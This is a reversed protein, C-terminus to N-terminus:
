QKIVLEANELFVTAPLEIITNDAPNVAILAARIVVPGPTPVTASCRMKGGYKLYHTNGVNTEVSKIKTSVNFPNCVVEQVIVDDRLLNIAYVLAVDGEFSIKLQTWFDIELDADVMVETEGAGLATFPIRGIETGCAFFVAALLIVTILKLLKM